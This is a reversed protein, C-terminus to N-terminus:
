GELSVVDIAGWAAITAGHIALVGDVGALGAAWAVAPELDAACRIRNGLGTAVADALAADRALVTSVRSTGASLSPGITGSSTAVGLGDPAPALRLGLSFAAAGEGAYIGVVRESASRLWIDGGNEVIVNGSLALLDRGVCEAVAGAVAAMPGVGARRAASVMRRVVPSAAVPGEHPVLSDGFTPDLRITEELGRRHRLVSELAERRLDTEARVFLDTERHSVGFGVLDGAPVRGRYVARDGYATM